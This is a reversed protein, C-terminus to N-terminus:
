TSLEESGAAAIIRRVAEVVTNSPLVDRFEELSGDDAYRRMAEQLKQLTLLNRRWIDLFRECDPRDWLPDDVAPEAICTLGPRAYDYRLWNLGDFIDAGSMLYAIMVGPTVAGFVHIPHDLGVSSLGRRLQRLAVCRAVISDGLEKETVGIVDFHALENAYELVAPIDLLGKPDDPKVLFDTETGATQSFDKRALAIQQEIPGYHDFSVSLTNTEETIASITAQYEERTWDSGMSPLSHLDSSIVIKSTEYVGSDLIIVDAIDAIESQVYRRAVDFASLLCVGYLDDRLLDLVQGVNPCGRSSFSPVVLPTYVGLRDVKRRGLFASEIPM